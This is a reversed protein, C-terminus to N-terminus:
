FPKGCTQRIALDALSPIVKFISIATKTLVPYESLKQFYSSLKVRGAFEKQWFISYQMEVQQKSIGTKLYCSVDIALAHASRLAMSMGNGTVPAISGASDGLHFVENKLIKKVKFDIGSVTVPEDFLFEAENFIKRLNLNKSLIKKEADAISNGSNKIQEANIIYCLCSKKDEVNSIGCYGGPFNHIEILSSDRELKVHYKVGVYNTHNKIKDAQSFNSRRGTSNCILKGTLHTSGAELSYYNENKNFIINRAKTNLYFSVGIKQARKFLLEELLFRSIGFGGQQLAISFKSKGTSSLCFNKIFPTDIDKLEPCLMMLYRRSEMSIYEGCVKHRPYNGKEIVAISHGKEALDISLALGAIGGGIIIVDHMM